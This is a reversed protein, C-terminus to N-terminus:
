REKIQNNRTINTIMGKAGAVFVANHESRECAYPMPSAARM